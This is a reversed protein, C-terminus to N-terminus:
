EGALPLLFDKPDVPRSLVPCGVSACSGSRRDGVRLRRGRRRWRSTGATGTATLPAAAALCDGERRRTPPQRVVGARCRLGLNQSCTGSRSPRSEKPWREDHRSRAGARRHSGRDDRRRPRGSLRSVFSRDIKIETIPLRKLLVMSSYGTGFDDLSVTVGIRRLSYLTATVEGSDRTLVRETLELVLM